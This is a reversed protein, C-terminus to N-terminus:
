STRNANALSRQRELTAIWADTDESSQTAFTYRQKAATFSFVHDHMPVATERRFCEIDNVYVVYNPRVQLLHVVSPNM